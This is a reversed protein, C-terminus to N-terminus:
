TGKRKRSKTKKKEVDLKHQEEAFVFRLTETSAASTTLPLHQDCLSVSVSICM